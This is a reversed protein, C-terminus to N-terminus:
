TWTQFGSYCPLTDTLGQIINEDEISKGYHATLYKATITEKQVENM